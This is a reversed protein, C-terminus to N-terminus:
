ETTIDMDNEYYLVENRREYPADPDYLPNAFCTFLQGNKASTTHVKIPTNLISFCTGM